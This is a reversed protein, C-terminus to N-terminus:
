LDDPADKLPAEVPDAGDKVAKEVRKKLKELETPDIDAADVSYMLNYQYPALQEKPLPPQGQRARRENLRAMFADFDRHRLRGIEEREPFDDLKAGTRRADAARGRAHLAFQVLLAAASVLVIISLVGETEVLGFAAM